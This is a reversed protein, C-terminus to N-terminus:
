DGRHVVAVPCSAQHLAVESGPSGDVGVVITRRDPASM